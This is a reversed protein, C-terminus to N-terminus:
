DGTHQLQYDEVTHAPCNGTYDIQGEGVIAAIPNPVPAAPLTFIINRVGTGCDQSVSVGSQTWKGNAFTYSAFQPPGNDPAPPGVLYTACSDGSRVCVTTVQWYQTATDYEQGRVTATQLYRGRLGQAVSSRPKPQAAPDPLNANAPADGVRTLTVSFEQVYQCADTGVNAITGTLTGDPQPQVSWRVWMTTDFHQGNLDCSAQKPQEVTRTWRGDVYDFVRVQEDGTTSVMTATATCVDSCASRFAWQQDLPPQGQQFIESALVTKGSVLHYLGDLRAQPTKPTAPPNGAQHSSCGAFVAVAAILAAIRTALM